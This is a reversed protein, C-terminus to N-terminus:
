KYEGKWMVVDDESIEALHPGKHDAAFECRIRPHSSFEQCRADIRTLDELSISKIEAIPEDNRYLVSSVTIASGSHVSCGEHCFGAECAPGCVSGSHCVCPQPQVQKELIQAYTLGEGNNFLFALEESTLTRNWLGAVLNEDQRKWKIVEKYCEDCVIGMDDRTSAGAIGFERETEKEAEETPTDTLFYGGCASCTFPRSM